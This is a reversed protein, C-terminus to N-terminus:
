AAVKKGVRNDLAEIMPVMVREYFPGAGNALEERTVVASVHITVKTEDPMERSLTFIAKDKTEETQITPVFFHKGFRRPTLKRIVPPVDVSVFGAPTEPAWAM